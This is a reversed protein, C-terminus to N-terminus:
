DLHVHGAHWAWWLDLSEEASSARFVIDKHREGRNWSEYTDGSKECIVIGDRLAMAIGKWKAAEQENYKAAEWLKDTLPTM